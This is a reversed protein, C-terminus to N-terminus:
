FNKSYDTDWPKIDQINNFAFKAKKEGIKKFQMLNEMTINDLVHENNTLCIMVDKSTNLNYEKCINACITWSWKTLSHLTGISDKFARNYFKKPIGRGDDYNVIIKIMSRFCHYLTPRELIPLSQSMSDIARFYPDLLHSYKGTFITTPEGSIILNACDYNNILDVCKRFVSDSYPNVSDRFDIVTKYEFAVTKGENNKYVYDGIELNGRKVEFPVTHSDYTLKNNELLPHKGEKLFKELAPFRKWEHYDMYFTNEELDEPSLIKRSM